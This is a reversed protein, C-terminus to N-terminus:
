FRRSIQYFIPTILSGAMTTLSGAFLLILLRFDSHLAIPRHSATLNRRCFQNYLKIPHRNPRTIM